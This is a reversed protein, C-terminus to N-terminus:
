VAARYLVRGCACCEIARTPVGCVCHVTFEDSLRAISIGFKQERRLDSTAEVVLVAKSEGRQECEGVGATPEAQRALEMKTLAPEKATRNGM